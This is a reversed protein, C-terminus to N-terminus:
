PGDEWPIVGSFLLWLLVLYSLAAAVVGLMAGVIPRRFIVGIGAGILAPCALMVSFFLVIKKSDSAEKGDGTAFRFWATGIALGGAILSVAWLLDRTRFQFNSREAM